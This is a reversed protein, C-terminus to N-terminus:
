VWIQSKTQSGRDTQNSASCPSRPASFLDGYLSAAPYALLRIKLLHTTTYIVREKFNYNVAGFTLQQGSRIEILSDVFSPDKADVSADSGRYLLPQLEKTAYNSFSQGDLDILYLSSIALVDTMPVMRWTDFKESGIPNCVIM